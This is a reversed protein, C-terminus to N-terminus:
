DYGAQDIVEAQELLNKLMTYESDAAWPRPLQHLFSSGLKM